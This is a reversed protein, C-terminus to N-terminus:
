KTWWTCLPKKTVRYYAKQSTYEYKCARLCVPKITRIPTLNHNLYFAGHGFKPRIRILALLAHRGYLSCLCCVIHTQTHLMNSCEDFPWYYWENCFTMLLVLNLNTPRENCLFNRYMVSVFMVDSARNPFTTINKFITSHPTENYLETSVQHCVTVCPLPLQLPFM